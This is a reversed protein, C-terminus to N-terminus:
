IGHRAAMIKITFVRITVPNIVFRINLPLVLLKSSAKFAYMEQFKFYKETLYFKMFFSGMTKGSFFFASPKNFMELIKNICPYCLAQLFEVACTVTNEAIVINGGPRCVRAAQNLAEGVYKLTSYFSNQAFHHISFHFVITDFSNDLFPLVFAEGCVQFINGNNKHCKLLEQSVDYFVYRGKNKFLEVGGSGIDLVDGKIHDKMARSTKDYIPAYDDQVTKLYDEGLSNFFDAQHQVKNKRCELMNM